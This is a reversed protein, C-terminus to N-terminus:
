ATNTYGTVSNSKGNNLIKERLKRVKERKQKITKPQLKKKRKAFDANDLVIMGGSAILYEDIENHYKKSVRHYLESLQKYEKGKENYTSYTGLDM